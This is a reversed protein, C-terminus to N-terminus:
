TDLLSALEGSTGALVLLNRESDVRLISQPTVFPELVKEMQAAAVFQLPAIIMQYGPPLPSSDDGLQPVLKAKQAEEATVVRYPNGTILAAGNMRLLTELTALVASQALPRTTQLSVTGQVKPDYVYDIKLFNGLITRVVERLDANEFNLVIGDGQPLAQLVAPKQVKVYRNSGPVRIPKQLGASASDRRSDPKTNKAELAANSDEDDLGAGSLVSYSALPDSDIRDSSDAKQRQMGTCSALTLAVASLLTVALKKNM